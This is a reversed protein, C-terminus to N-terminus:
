SRPLNGLLCEHLYLNFGWRRMLAALLFSIHFGPCLPYLLHQPDETTDDNDKREEDCHQGGCSRECGCCDSGVRSPRGRQRHGNARDLSDSAAALCAVRDSIGKWSQLLLETGRLAQAVVASHQVYPLLAANRLHVEASPLHPQQKSLWARRAVLTVALLPLMRSHAVDLPQHDVLILEVECVPGVMHHPLKPQWAGTSRTKHAAHGACASVAESSISAGGCCCLQAVRPAQCDDVALKENGVVAVVADTTHLKLPNRAAHDRRYSAGRGPDSERAVVARRARCLEGEWSTEHRHPLHRVESVSAVRSDAADVEPLARRNQGGESSATCLERISSWGRLPLETVRHAQSQAAIPPVHVDRAPTAAVCGVGNVHLSGVM